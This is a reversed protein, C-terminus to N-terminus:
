CFTKWIKSILTPLLSPQCIKRCAISSFLKSFRMVCGLTSQEAGIDDLILVEALKIDDVLTKVSGEGIANKVDIVFSPYHLITTSAGRKESLDHALAAMM